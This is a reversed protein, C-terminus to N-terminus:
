GEEAGECWCGRVGFWFYKGGVVVSGFAVTGGEVGDGDLLGDVCCCGIFAAAGDAEFGAGVEGAREEQFGAGGEIDGFADGEDAGFFEFVVGFEGGSDGADLHGPGGGEDVGAVLMVDGDGAFAGDVAVAGDPPLGVPVEARFIFGLAEAPGGVVIRLAGAEDEQLVGGVDVEASADVELAGAEPGNLDEVGVVDGDISDDDAVVFAAFTGRGVADVDVGRVFDDDSVGVDVDVVVGEAELGAAVGVAEADVAGCFIDDDAVGDDTVAGCGDGDAALGGAAEVVDFGVIEGGEGADGGSNQEFGGFSAASVGFLNADVVEVQLAYGDGDV